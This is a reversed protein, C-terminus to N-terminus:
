SKSTVTDPRLGLRLCSFDCSLGVGAKPKLSLTPARPWALILFFTEQNQLKPFAGLVGLLSDGPLCPPQMFAWLGWQWGGQSWIQSHTERGAHEWGSTVRGGPGEQRKKHSLSVSFLTGSLHPLRSGEQIKGFEEWEPSCLLCEESKTPPPLIGRYRSPQPDGMSSPSVSDQNHVHAALGGWPPSYKLDLFSCSSTSNCPM